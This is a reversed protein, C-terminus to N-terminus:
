VKGYIGKLEKLEEWYDKGDRRSEKLELRLRTIESNERQKMFDITKQQSKMQSIQQNLKIITAVLKHNRASIMKNETQMTQYKLILDKNIKVTDDDPVLHKNEEKMIVSDCIEIYDEYLQPYNKFYGDCQNILAHRVTVHDKGVVIGVATLSEAPAHDKMLKYYLCRLHVVRMQRNKKAIDVKHRKLIFAHIVNALEKAEKSKLESTNLESAM